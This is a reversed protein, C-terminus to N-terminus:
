ELVVDGNEFQVQGASEEQGEQEAWLEVDEKGVLRHDNLALVTSPPRGGAEISHGVFRDVHEFGTLSERKEQWMSSRRFKRNRFGSIGTM